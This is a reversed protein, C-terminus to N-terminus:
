LGEPTVICFGQSFCICYFLYISRRSRILAWARAALVWIVTLLVKYRYRDSQSWHRLNISADVSGQLM